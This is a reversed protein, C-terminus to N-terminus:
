LWGQKYTRGTSGYMGSARQPNYVGSAWDMNVGDIQPLQAAGEQGSVSGFNPNTYGPGIIGHIQGNNLMSDYAQQNRTRAEYARLMKQKEANLATFNAQYGPGAPAPTYNRLQDYMSDGLAFSAVQAATQPDDYYMGGGNILHSTLAPIDKEPQWTVNSPTTSGLVSRIYDEKSRGASGGRARRAEADYRAQWDALWDDQNEFPLAEVINSTPAGSRQPFSSARGGLGGLGGFNM